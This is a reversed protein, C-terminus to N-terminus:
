GGGRAEAKEILPAAHELLIMRLKAHTLYSAILITYGMCVWFVFRMSRDMVNDVQWFILLIVELQLWTKM